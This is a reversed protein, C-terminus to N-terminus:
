EEVPESSEVAIPRGDRVTFETPLSVFQIVGRIVGYDDTVQYVEEMLHSTYVEKEPLDALHLLMERKEGKRVSSSILHGSTISFVSIVFVLLCSFVGRFVSDNSHRVLFYWFSFTLFAVTLGCSIIASM